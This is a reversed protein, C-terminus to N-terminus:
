LNDLFSKYKESTIDGNLNMLKKQSIYVLTSFFESDVKPISFIIPEVFTLLEIQNNTNKKEQAVIKRKIRSVKTQNTHFIKALLAQSFGIKLCLRFLENKNKGIDYVEKKNYIERVRKYVKPSIKKLFIQLTLVQKEERYRFEYKYRQYFNRGRKIKCHLNCYFRNTKGKQKVCSYTYEDETLNQLGLKTIADGHENCKPCQLRQSLKKKLEAREEEDIYPQIRTRTYEKCKPCKVRDRLLDKGAIYTNDDANNLRTFYFDKPHATSNQCKYLQKVHLQSQGNDDVATDDIYVGLYEIFTKRQM